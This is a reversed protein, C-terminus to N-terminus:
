RKSKRKKKKSHTRHLQEVERKHRKKKSHADKRSGKKDAQAPGREAQVDGSQHRDPDEKTQKAADLYRDQSGSVHHGQEGLAPQREVSSPGRQADAAKAPTRDSPPLMHMGLQTMRDKTAELYKAANSDDPKIELATEFDQAAQQFNRDNAHAAGRAVWADVNRRDLELARAYCKHANEYDGNKAAAVGRRVAEQSWVAKIGLKLSERLDELAGESAGDSAFSTGKLGELLKGLRYVEAMSGACDPSNFTRSSQLRSLFPSEKGQQVVEFM